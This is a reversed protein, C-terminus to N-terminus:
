QEGRRYYNRAWSLDTCSLDAGTLDAESLDAETFNAYSLDIYEYGTEKRYEKRYQNFAQVDERLLSILDLKSKM